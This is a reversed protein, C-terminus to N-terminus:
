FIRMNRLEEPKVQLEKAWDRLKELIEVNGSREAKRLTAQKYIDKSLFVENRLEEPKIHLEKAWDWLKELIEVNDSIAAKHWITQEYEDRSLFV